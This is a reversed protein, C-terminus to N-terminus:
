GRLIGHGIGPLCTGKVEQATGPRADPMLAGVVLPLLREIQDEIFALDDAESRVAVAVELIRPGERWCTGYGKTLDVGM